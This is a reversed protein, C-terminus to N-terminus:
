RPAVRAGAPKALATEQSYAEKAQQTSPEARCRRSLSRCCFSWHPTLSGLLWARGGLAAQGRDRRKGSSRSGSLRLFPRSVPEREEEDDEGGSLEGLEAPGSGSLRLELPNERDQDYPLISPTSVLLGQGM